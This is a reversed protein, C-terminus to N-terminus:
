KLAGKKALGPVPVAKIIESMIKDPSIHNIKAKPSYILRHGAVDGFVEKVDEPIVYNRGYIYAHARAMAAMAVAGRPSLGLDIMANNRTLSCIMAIYEYIAKDMHIDAVENQMELLEKANVVEEVLDLPNMNQRNIMIEVESEIDPYGMSLKVMFRDLQSEPLLQTGASGVPNQTAIVVFPKNIVRTVGDVTVQGEEMAELLASQTKSSTRNIEDALFLNCMVAGQKYEFEGTKSNYMSYGVVDSPLVDTTIQMRNQSLDMSKAFALALTTKGVGPIDEMLIHGKALIAMLVKSVVVSKGKVAKNVNEIINLAKEYGMNREMRNIMKNMNNSM